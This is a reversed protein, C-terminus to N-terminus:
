AAAQRPCLMPHLLRSLEAVDAVPRAFSVRARRAAGPQGYAVLLGYRDIRVVRPSEAGTLKLQRRLHAAVQEAHHDALDALLGAEAAHLPDPEAQAYAQPDIPRTAGAREWRAETVEFRHLQFRSGVDLLDGTPRTAAFDMAAQRAADGDLREAWGSVWARGLSPAGATPPLDLVDLVAAVATDGAPPTLATALDGPAPVLLLVRGAPDTAHRVQHPGTSGALQALAPLGGAVLTRVIEAPSPRM